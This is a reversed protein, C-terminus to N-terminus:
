ANFENDTKGVGGDLRRTSRIKLFSVAMWKTFWPLCLSEERKKVTAM